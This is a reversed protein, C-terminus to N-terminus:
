VSSLPGAGCGDGTDGAAGGAGRTWSGLGAPDALGEQM